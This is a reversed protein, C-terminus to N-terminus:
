QAAPFIKNIIVTIIIGFIISLMTWLLGAGKRVFARWDEKEVERLLAKVQVRAEQDNKLLDIMIARLTNDISKQKKAANCFIEAFKDPQELSASVKEIASRPNFDDDTAPAEPEGM